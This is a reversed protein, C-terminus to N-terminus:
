RTFPRRDDPDSVNRYEQLRNDRYYRKGDIEEVPLGRPSLQLETEATYLWDSLIEEVLGPLSVSRHLITHMEERVRDLRHVYEPPITLTDM